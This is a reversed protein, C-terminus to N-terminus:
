GFKEYTFGIKQTTNLKELPHCVLLNLWFIFLFQTFANYKHLLILVM